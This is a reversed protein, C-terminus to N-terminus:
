TNGGHKIVKVNRKFRSPTEFPMLPQERLIVPSAAPTWTQMVFVGKGTLAIWGLGAFVLDGAAQRWTHGTVQWEQPALEPFILGPSNAITDSGGADQSRSNAIETTDSVGSQLLLGSDKHKIPPVLIGGLHKQYFQHANLTKTIHVHLTNAVFLTFYIPPGSIYDL